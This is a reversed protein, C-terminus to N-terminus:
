SYASLLAREDRANIWGAARLEAAGETLTEKVNDKLLVNNSSAVEILDACFEEDLKIKEKIASELMSKLAKSRPQLVHEVATASGLAGFTRRIAGVVGNFSAVRVPSFVRFQMTRDTRHCVLYFPLCLLTTEDFRSVQALEKLQQAEEGKRRALGEIKTGILLTLSKMAEIERQKAEIAQDRQVEIDLIKRQEQDILWQYGQRLKEADEESQRRTKEIFEALSRVRAKLEEIRNDTARIQHAWHAQGIKDHKHSRAERKRVFDAKALILKQLERERKEKERIRSKLEGEIRKRMKGLRADRETLLTDVKKEVDPKLEGVHKEYAERKVNIEKLVMQEHLKFTEELLDRSYELTAADSQIRAYLGQVRKATQVAADIDLKLPALAIQVRGSGAPPLEKVYESIAALADRDTILADVQVETTQAFADFTRVHKELANRFLARISSSREVDEIFKQVTPLGAVTFRSKSVGLGDVILSHNGWLVAWLPYHLKSVFAVRASSAGLLGRAHRKAEALLLMAAIEM